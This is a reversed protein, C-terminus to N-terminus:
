RARGVEEILEESTFFGLEKGAQAGALQHLIVAQVPPIGKAAFAATIGALVDGSGAVGMAPNSGDYIYSPEGYRVVAVVDSKSIIVADSLMHSLEALASLMVSPTNFLATPLLRSLLYRLEGPHPTFILSPKIVLSPSWIDAFTRIGDADLVLIGDYSSLLQELLRGQGSGIGPGFLVADYKKEGDYSSFPRVMASPSDLAAIQVVEPSTFVTVLGCGAKFASRTALRVAGPYDASSGFVAIHGRSNKYDSSDLPPVDYDSASVLYAAAEPSVPAFSPNYVRVEGASVRANKMYLALKRYGFTITRSCRIIDSGDSDDGCGSPVDVAIVKSKLSNIKRILAKGDERVSGKLGVGFLGDIILDGEIITRVPIGLAECAKRQITFLESERGGHFYLGINRFGDCWAMRAAALADGANNGSGCLFTVKRASEIDKRIDEYLLRAASEMLSISPILYEESSIRDLRLSEAASILIDM